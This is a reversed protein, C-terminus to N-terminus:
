ASKKFGVRRLHEQLLSNVLTQMSSGSDLCHTLVERYFKKDMSIAVTQHLTSGARFKEEIIERGLDLAARAQNAIQDGAVHKEVYSFAGLMWAKRVKEHDEHGTLMIVPTFDNRDRLMGVLELGDVEPMSIDSIILDVKERVSIELAERGNSAM